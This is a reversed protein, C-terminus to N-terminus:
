VNFCDEILAHFCEFLAVSTLGFVLNPKDTLRLFGEAEKATGLSKAPWEFCSQVAAAGASVFNGLM